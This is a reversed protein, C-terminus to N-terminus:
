AMIAFYGLDKLGRILILSEAITKAGEDINPLLHAHM